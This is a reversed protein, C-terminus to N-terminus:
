FLFESLWTWKGVKSVSVRSCILIEKKIIIIGVCMMKKWKTNYLTNQYGHYYKKPHAFSILRTM